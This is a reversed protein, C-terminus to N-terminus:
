ETGGASPVVVVLDYCTFVESRLLREGVVVQVHKWKAVCALEFLEQHFSRM